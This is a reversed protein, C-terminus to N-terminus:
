EVLIEVGEPPDLVPDREPAVVLERDGRVAEVRCSASVIGGARFGKTLGVRRERDLGTGPDALREIDAGEEVGAVYVAASPLPVRGSQESPRPKSRRDDRRKAGDAHIEAVSKVLYIDKAPGFGAPLEM